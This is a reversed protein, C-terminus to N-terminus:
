FPTELTWASGSQLLHVYTGDTIVQMAGSEDPWMNGAFQRDPHSLIVVADPGNSTIRLTRDPGAYRLVVDRDGTITADPGFTRVTSLPRLRISWAGGSTVRLWRDGPAWNIVTQGRWPASAVRAGNWTDIGFHVDALGFDVDAIMAGPPIFFSSNGSGRVLMDATVGTAPTWILSGGQFDTRRGGPVAYEDSVPYGLRSGEWGMAAWADRIAGRVEHAGTAPTWYISGSQFHNYRGVRDPTARESTTPYGLASREWGLRAWTDRIAGRVAHAGTSPTFYVSGRQFHNYRGPAIPTATEHTVPYGLPGREWGEAAWTHRIAGRVERAGTRGSWYISGREFESFAGDRLLREHTVPNGVASRPGGLQLWAAEIAGRVDRPGAPGPYLRAQAAAAPVLLVGVALTVVLTRLVSKM